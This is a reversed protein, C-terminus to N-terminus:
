LARRRELKADCSRLPKERPGKGAIGEKDKGTCALTRGYGAQKAASLWTRCLPHMDGTMVVSREGANGRV